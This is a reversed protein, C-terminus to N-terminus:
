NGNLMWYMKCDDCNCGWPWIQFDRDSGYLQKGLCGLTIIDLVGAGARKGVEFVSVIAGFPIFSVTHRVFEMPIEVPSVCIEIVGRLIGTPFPWEHSYEDAKVANRRKNRTEEEDIMQLLKKKTEQMADVSRQVREVVDKSFGRGVIETKLERARQELVSITERVRKFDRRALYEMLDCSTLMYPVIVHYSSDENVKRCLNRAKEITVIIEDNDEISSIRDLCEMAQTLHICAALDRVAENNAPADARPVGGANLVGAMACAAVVFIAMRM